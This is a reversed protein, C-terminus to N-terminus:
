PDKLNWGAEVAPGGLAHHELWGPAHDHGYAHGPPAQGAQSAAEPPLKLVPRQGGPLGATDLLQIKGDPVYGMEGAMPMMVMSPTNSPELEEVEIRFRRKNHTGMVFRRSTLQDNEAIGWILASPTPQYAERPAQDNETIPIQSIQ